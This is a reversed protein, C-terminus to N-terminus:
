STGLTKLSCQLKNEIVEQISVFHGCKWLVNTITGNGFTIKLGFISVIKEAEQMMQNEKVGPHM